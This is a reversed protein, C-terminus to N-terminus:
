KIRYLGMMKHDLKKLLQETKINKTLLWVINNVKYKKEIDKRHRDTAVAQKKQSQAMKKRVFKWVRKMDAAISWTKRNVLRKQTSEELLDVPDFSM